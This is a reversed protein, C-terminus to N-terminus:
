SSPAVNRPRSQLAPLNPAQPSIQAAKELFPNVAMMEMLTRDDPKPYYIGVDKPGMPEQEYRKFITFSSRAFLNPIELQFSKNIIYDGRNMQRTFLPLFSLEKGVIKELLVPGDEDLYHRTDVILSGAVFQAKIDQAVTDNRVSQELRAAATKTSIRLDELAFFREKGDKDPIRVICLAHPTIEADGPDNRLGTVYYVNEKGLIRALLVAKAIAVDCCVGAGKEALEAPTMTWDKPDIDQREAKESDYLTTVNIMAQVITAVHEKNKERKLREAITVWTVFRKSYKEPHALCDDLSQEIAEMKSFISDTDVLAVGSRYGWINKSPVNFIADVGFLKGEVQKQITAEQQSGAQAKLSANNQVTSACSTLLTAVAIFAACKLAHIPTKKKQKHFDARRAM